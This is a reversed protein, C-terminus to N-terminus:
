LVPCGAGQRLARRMSSRSRTAASRQAGSRLTVTDADVTVEDTM